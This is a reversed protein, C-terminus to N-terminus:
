YEWDITIQAAINTTQTLTLTDTSAPNLWLSGPLLVLTQGGIVTNAMRLYPLTSAKVTVSFTNTPVVSTWYVYIAAARVPRSFTGVGTVIQNTVINAYTRGAYYGDARCWLPMSLMFLWLLIFYLAKWNPVKTMM